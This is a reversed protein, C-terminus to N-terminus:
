LNFRQRLFHAIGDANHHGIVETAAAKIVENANAPAYSEDAAAFMSLDNDSDGFCVVKSVGLQRRLLEVASGKSASSHHIDMWKLTKNEMAPGSYAVLHPETSINLQIADIDSAQGLMSINTIEADAPMQAAPRVIAGPRGIFNALVRKEIANRVPTHFIFHRNKSDISAIFPTIGRAMTAELIHGAESLTLFNDLSLTELRPDWIIVGNTYIHPLSFGHGVIIDQASHLARGTAVTYAINKKALLTLTERTFSSIKSADNLLTGDLDFVILEM